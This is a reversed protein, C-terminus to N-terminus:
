QCRTPAGMEDYGLIEDASMGTIVPRKARRLAIENIEDVVSRRLRPQRVREYKETLALPIADTLTEGTLAALKRTLEETQPNRISIPM